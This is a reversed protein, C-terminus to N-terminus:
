RSLAKASAQSSLAILLLLHVRILCTTASIMSAEDAVRRLEARAAVEPCHSTPPSRSTLDRELLRV